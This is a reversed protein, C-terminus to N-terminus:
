RFRHDVHNKVSVQLIVRKVRGVSSSCMTSRSIDTVFLVFLHAVFILVDPRKRQCFFSADVGM